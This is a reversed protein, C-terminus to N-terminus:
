ATVAILPTPAKRKAKTNNEHHQQRHLLAATAFALFHNRKNSRKISAAVTEESTTTSSEESTKASCPQETASTVGDAGTTSQQLVEAHLQNAREHAETSCHYTCNHYVAAIRDSAIGTTESNKKNHRSIMSSDDDDDDDNEGNSHSSMKADFQERMVVLQSVKRIQKCERRRSYIAYSEQEPLLQKELERREYMEEWDDTVIYRRRKEDMSMDYCSEYLKVSVMECFKVSSSSSTSKMSSSDSAYSRTRKLISRTTSTNTNSSAVM